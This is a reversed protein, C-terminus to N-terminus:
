QINRKLSLLIYKDKKLLYSTVSLNRQLFLLKMFFVDKARKWDTKAFEYFETLDSIIHEGFRYKRSTVTVCYPINFEGGNTLLLFEGYHEEGPIAMKGKFYFPIECETGSLETLVPVMKDNTSLIKGALEQGNKSYITFSREFSTGTEVSLDLYIDSLGIQPRIM